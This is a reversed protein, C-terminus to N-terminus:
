FENLDKLLLPIGKLSSTTIQIVLSFLLLHKCETKNLKQIGIASNMHSQSTNDPLQM